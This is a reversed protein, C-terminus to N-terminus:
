RWMSARWAGNATFCSLCRGHAVSHETEGHGRECVAMFTKRGERRAEARLGTGAPKRRDVGISTFCRLCKGTSVHFDTRGHEACEAPYTWKGDRRALARARDVKARKKRPPRIEEGPSRLRWGRCALCAGLGAVFDTEGHVDCNYRFFPRGEALAMLNEHELTFEM